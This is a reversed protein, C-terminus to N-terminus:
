SFNDEWLKGFFIKTKPECLGGERAGSGPVITTTVKEGFLTIDDAVYEKFNPAEVTVARLGYSTTRFAQDRLQPRLARSKSEDVQIFM